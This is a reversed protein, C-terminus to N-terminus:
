DLEGYFLKEIEKDAKYFGAKIRAKGKWAGPKRLSKDSPIYRSLVAVPKGAKGIIIEEGAVARDILKSFHTKAEHINVQM